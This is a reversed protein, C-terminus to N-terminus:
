ELWKAIDPKSLATDWGKESDGKHVEKFSDVNEGELHAHLHPYKQGDNEDWTLRKFSGVRDTELRLLVVSPVDAFFRNLTGPVQNATSLHVFGDKYDLESLYFTHSAPIPIPFTYRTDVSSHPIIKYIWKPSSM